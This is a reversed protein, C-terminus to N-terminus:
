FSIRPKGDHNEYSFVRFLLWSLRSYDVSLMIRGTMRVAATSRTYSDYQDRDNM